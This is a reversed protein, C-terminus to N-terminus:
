RIGIGLCFPASYWFVCEQLIQNVFFLKKKTLLENLFTIKESLFPNEVEKTHLHEESTFFFHCFYWFVCKSFIQILFRDNKLTLLRSFFHIKWSFRTWREIYFIPSCILFDLPAKSEKQKNLNSNLGEQIGGVIQIVSGPKAKVMNVQVFILIM